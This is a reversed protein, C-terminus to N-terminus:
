EHRFMIALRPDAHRATKPVCHEFTRQCTGGMVVLDGGTITLATSAGGGFPRMMFRRSGGLTLVCVVTRDRDRVKDRHWTVSDSGDRYLAMTIADFRRDYRDSLLSAMRAILPHGEGDEPVSALLRPVDVVREYMVRRHGHWQMSGEIAAFLLDHGSVWGLVHDVWAGRGLDLRRATSFREDVAPEGGGFLSLQAGRM